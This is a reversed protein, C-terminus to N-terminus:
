FNPTQIFKYVIKGTLKVPKGNALPPTFTSRYAALESERVNFLNTNKVACASIVIGTEGILVKVEVFNNTRIVPAARSTRPQGLSIAKSNLIGADEPLRFKDSRVASGFREKIQGFEKERDGKIHACECRHYALDFYRVMALDDKSALELARIYLEGAGKFEMNEFRANALAMLASLNRPSDKGNARERWNLANRFLDEADANKKRDNLFGLVEYMEALNQADESSLDSTNSYSKLASHFSREADDFDGLAFFVLGLNRRAKATELHREGYIQLAVAAAKRAFVLSESFRKERFLKTAETSAEILDKSTQAFTVVFGLIALLVFTAFRAHIM